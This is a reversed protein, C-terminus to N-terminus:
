QSLTPLLFLPELGTSNTKCCLLGLSPGAPVRGQPDEPISEMHSSASISAESSEVWWDVLREGADWHTWWFSM